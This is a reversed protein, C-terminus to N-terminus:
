KFIRVRMGTKPHRSGWTWTVPISPTIAKGFPWNDEAGSPVEFTVTQDSGWVGESALWIQVVFDGTEDATITGDPAIALNTLSNPNKVWAQDGDVITIPDSTATDILGTWLSADDTTNPSAATVAFTGSEPVQQLTITQNGDPHLLTGTLDQNYPNGGRVTTFTISTDSVVTFDTQAESGINFGTAGTLNTGTLTATEGPTVENNTNIDTITPPPTASTELTVYPTTGTTGSTQSWPDAFAEAVTADSPGWNEQTPDSSNAALTLGPGSQKFVVHYKTGATISVPSDLTIENIADAVAGGSLIGSGLLASPRDNVGNDSYIAVAVSQGDGSSTRLFKVVAGDGSTDAVFMWGRPELTNFGEAGGDDVQSGLLVTM